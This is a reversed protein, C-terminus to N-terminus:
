IKIKAGIYFGIHWDILKINKPAGFIGARIPKLLKYIGANNEVLKKLDIGLGCAPKVEKKIDTVIGYDISLLDDKWTAFPTTLGYMIVGDNFDFFTSVTMSPPIIGSIATGALLLVLVIISSLKRM